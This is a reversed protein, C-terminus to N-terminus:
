VGRVFVYNAWPRYRPNDPLKPRFYPLKCYLGGYFVFLIGRPDQKGLTEPACLFSNFSTRSLKSIINDSQVINQQELM